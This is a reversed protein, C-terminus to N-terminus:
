EYARRKAPVGLDVEFLGQSDRDSIYLVTEEFGGVGLGWHMNPIWGSTTQVALEPEGGEPGFRWIRGSVFETIYVNDCADVNIGDLGGTEGFGGWAPECYLFGEYDSCTGEVPWVPSRSECAAGEDLGDCVDELAYWDEDVTCVHLNEFSVDCWGSVGDLTCEEDAHACAEVRDAGAVPCFLLGSLDTACVSDVTEGFYTTSCAEGDTRGDCAATDPAPVCELADDQTACVGVGGFGTVMFCTDGEEHEACPDAGEPEEGHGVRGFLVPESFTGDEAKTLVHITGGGFSGVYLKTFTTDFTLGNPNFLGTALVVFEGTDPDVSRIQGGDQEAVYIRGDLDVEVGNPYALGSLITERGGNPTVRDLSGASVNALVFDGNPLYRVGATEEFGAALVSREGDRTIALLNGNEDVSVMRGELDFAFDEAGTFGELLTPEIPLAPLAACDLEPSPTATPTPTATPSGKCGVSALLALVLLRNM